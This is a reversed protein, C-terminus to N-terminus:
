FERKKKVDDLWIMTTVLVINRPIDTLLFAHIGAIYISFIHEMECLKTILDTLPLIIETTHMDSQTLQLHM